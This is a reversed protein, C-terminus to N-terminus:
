GVRRWPPRHCVHPEAQTALIYAVGLGDLAAELM